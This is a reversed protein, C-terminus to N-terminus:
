FSNLIENALILDGVVFYKLLGSQQAIWKELISGPYINYVNTLVGNTAGQTLVKFSNMGRYSSYTVNQQSM